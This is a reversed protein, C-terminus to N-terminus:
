PAGGLLRLVDAVLVVDPPTPAPALDSRGGGRCLSRVREVGEAADLLEPLAAHMEAILTADALDLAGVDPGGDEAPGGRAVYEGDVDDGTRVVAELDYQDEGGYFAGSGDPQVLWQGQTAAEHLRRLYDVHVAM